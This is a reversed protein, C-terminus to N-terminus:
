FRRPRSVVLLVDRNRARARPANASARCRCSSLGGTPGLTPSSTESAFTHSLTARRAPPRPPGGHDNTKCRGAGAELTHADVARAVPFPQRPKHRGEWGARGLLLLDGAPQRRRVRRHQGRLGGARHISPPHRRPRSSRTSASAPAVTFLALCLMVLGALVLLRRLLQRGDATARAGGM